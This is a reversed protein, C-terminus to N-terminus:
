VVSKRLTIGLEHYTLQAGGALGRLQELTTRLADGMRRGPSLRHIAEQLLGHLRGLAVSGEREHDECEHSVSIWGAAAAQDAYEGLLVTKGVGRLGTVRVNHPLGPFDALHQRFRGLQGERDALYVPATGMGPRYPNGGLPASM